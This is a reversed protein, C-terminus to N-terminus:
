GSKAISHQGSESLVDAELVVAIVMASKL